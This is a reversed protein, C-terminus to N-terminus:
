EAVGLGELLRPMAKLTSVAAVVEAPDPHGSAAACVTAVAALYRRCAELSSEAQIDTERWCKPTPHYQM